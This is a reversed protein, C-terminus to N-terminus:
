ESDGSDSDGSDGADEGASEASEGAEGVLETEGEVEPEEEVVLRPPSVTALVEEVDSILTVGAPLAVAEATLRDNIEMEGVSVELYEPVDAPLAEITIERTPHELVGGERVGPSSESDTLHIAVQAEIPKKLDVRVLDVHMLDGRVPHRQAEKLVAPEGSGDLVLELVAGRHALAHRLDREDADFAVPDGGLGYLVGPIRGERRLRRTERSHGAERRHVEIKTSDTDAM